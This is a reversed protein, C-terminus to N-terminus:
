RAFEFEERAITKKKKKRAVWLIHEVMGGIWHLNQAFEVQWTIRFRGAM